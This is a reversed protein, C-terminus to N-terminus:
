PERAAASRQLYARLDGVDYRGNQNNLADLFEEELEDLPNSGDLLLPGLLRPLSVPATSIVLEAGGPEVSIQYINIGSEDGHGTDHRTSPETFGTLAGPGLAGYADGPEGRNGGEPATKVLSGDGDAELLMVRYLRPCERCPRWAITDNVRYVLVGAAPIDRDFGIRDRYEVLLREDEGLPLEVIARSTQVPALNVVQLEVDAVHRIEDLWGLRKKEWAGMHTPRLWATRDDVPGCGWSGAAMLSWCGLVWRREEPLLGDVPHYFDPLGILHGL